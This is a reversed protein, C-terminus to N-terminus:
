NASREETSLCNTYSSSVPAGNFGPVWFALLDIAGSGTRLLGCGVGLALGRATGFLPPGLKSENLTRTLLDVFGTSINIAGRGLMGSWKEGYYPSEARQYLALRGAAAWAPPCVALALVLGAGWVSRRM